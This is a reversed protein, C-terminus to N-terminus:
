KGGSADKKSSKINRRSKFKDAKVKLLIYTVCIVILIMGLLSTFNALEFEVFYFLVRMLIYSIPMMFFPIIRTKGPIFDTVRILLLLAQAIILSIISIVSLWGLFSFIAVFWNAEAWLSIYFINYSFLILVLIYLPKHTILNWINRLDYIMDIKAKKEEGIHSPRMGLGLFILLLLFGFNAPHFLDINFLYTFLHTSFSHLSAGFTSLQGGFTYEITELHGPTSVNFGGQMLFILCLLLLIAPLFFPGIFLFANSVWEFIGSKQKKPSVKGYNVSLYFDSIGSKTVTYGLAHCITQFLIGLFNTFRCLAEHKPRVKDLLYKESEIFLLQIFWFLVVGLIPALPAFVVIDIASGGEM